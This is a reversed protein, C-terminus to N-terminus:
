VFPTDPPWGTEGEDGRPERSLSTTTRRAMM